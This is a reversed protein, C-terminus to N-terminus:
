FEAIVEGNRGLLGFDTLFENLIELGAGPPLQLDTEERSPSQQSSWLHIVPDHFPNCVYAKGVNAIRETAKPHCLNKVEGKAKGIGPYRVMHGVVKDPFKLGLFPILYSHKRHM